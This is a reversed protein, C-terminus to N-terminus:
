FSFADWFKIYALLIFGTLFFYFQSNKHPPVGGKCDLHAFHHRALGSVKCSEIWFDFFDVFFVFNVQFLAVRSRCREANAHPFIKLTECHNYYGFIGLDLLILCKTM